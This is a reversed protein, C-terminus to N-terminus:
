TGWDIQEADFAYKKQEQKLIAQVHAKPANMVVTQCDGNQLEYVVDYLGQTNRFVLVNKVMEM